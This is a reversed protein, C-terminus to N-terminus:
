LSANRAKHFGVFCTVWIDHRISISLRDSVLTVLTCCLVLSLACDSVRAPLHRYSKEIKVRETRPVSASKSRIGGEVWLYNKVSSVLMRWRDLSEAIVPPPSCHEIYAYRDPGRAGQFTSEGPSRPLSLSYLKKNM